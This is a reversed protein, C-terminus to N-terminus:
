ARCRPAMVTSSFSALATTTRGSTTTFQPTVGDEPWAATTGHLLRDFHLVSPPTSRCCIAPSARLPPHSARPKLKPHDGTSLHSFLNTLYGHLLFAAIALEGASSSTLGADESLLRDSHHGPVLPEALRHPILRGAIFEM